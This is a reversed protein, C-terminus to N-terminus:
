ENQSRIKNEIRRVHRDGIGIIEAVKEQTLGIARLQRVKITIDSINEICNDIINKKTTLDKLLKKEEEMLTKFMIAKCMVRSADPLDKSGHPMDSYQQATLEKPKWGIIKDNWYNFSIEHSEMLNKHLEIEDILEKYGNM